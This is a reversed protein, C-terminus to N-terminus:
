ALNFLGLLGKRGSKKQLAPLTQEVQLRVLAVPAQPGLLVLVTGVSAERAYLRGDSFVLDAERNGSLVATLAPFLEAATGPSHAPPNWREALVEGEASVLVVGRVDQLGLIERFPEGM